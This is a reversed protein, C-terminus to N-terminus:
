CKFYVSFVWFLFCRFDEIWMGLCKLVEIIVMECNFIYFYFGLVLGSVLFEYCLSVVLEIGYNCIVVDNDKILEIM